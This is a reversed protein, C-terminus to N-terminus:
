FHYSKLKAWEPWVHFNGLIIGTLHNFAFTICSYCKLNNWVYIVCINWRTCQVAICVFLLQSYFLCSHRVSPTRNKSIKSQFRFSMYNAHPKQCAFFRYPRTFWITITLLFIHPRLTFISTRYLHWSNWM